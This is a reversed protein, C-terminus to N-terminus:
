LPIIPPNVAVGETVVGIGSQSQIQVQVGTSGHGGTGRETQEFFDSDSVELLEVQAVPMFILQAFRTGPELIYSPYGPRIWVDVLLEGQYDSDILGVNNGMVLGQRHALGSRPLIFAAYKPNGIHIRLGTPVLISPNEPLITVPEPNASILDLAASGPTQYQPLPQQQNLRIAQVQIKAQCKCM